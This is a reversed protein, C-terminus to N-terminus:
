QCNHTTAVTVIILMNKLFMFHIDKGKMAPRELKNGCIGRGWQIDGPAIECAPREHEDAEGKDEHKEVLSTRKGSSYEAVLVWGIERCSQHAVREPDSELHVSV